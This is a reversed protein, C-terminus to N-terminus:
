PRQPRAAPLPRSGRIRPRLVRRVRGRGRLRPPRGAPVGREAGSVERACPLRGTIATARPASGPWCRRRRTACASRTGAQEVKGDPRVLKPGVAAVGPLAAHLVMQEIWDPDVIETEPALFLLYEGAAQAAGLNNAARPSAQGGDVVITRRMARPHCLKVDPDSTADLLSSLLRSIAAAAPPSSSASRRSRRRATPPPWYRATPITAHSRGAGAASGSSTASVARAQLEPVGSRRDTGAAISGPIARWHYLIQPIHHIRETRESVRLM